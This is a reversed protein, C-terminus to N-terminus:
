GDTLIRYAAQLIRVDQLINETQELTPVQLSPDFANARRVAIFLNNEWFSLAVQCNAIQVFEQIHQIRQPTLIYYANHADEAYCQFKSDFEASETKIPNPACWGRLDSLREKQFVQIRGSSSKRQDFGYLCIVQGSFITETRSRKGSYVIRATLVDSMSFRLGQFTGTLLDESSFQKAEGCNVVAANRIDDWSFGRKQFYQLNEFGPTQGIVQTVYRNKFNESFQKQTRRVLLWWLAIWIFFLMVAGVVVTSGLTVFPSPDRMTVFALFFIFPACILSLVLSLTDRKKAKLRLEELEELTLPSDQM